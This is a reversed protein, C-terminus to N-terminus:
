EAMDVMSQPFIYRFGKGDVTLDLNLKTKSPIRLYYKGGYCDYYEIDGNFIYEKIEGCNQIELDGYITHVIISIGKIENINLKKSKIM